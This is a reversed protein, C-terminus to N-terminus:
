DEALGDLFGADRVIGQRVLLRVLSGVIKWAPVSRGGGRGTALDELKALIERELAAANAPESRAEDAFLDTLDVVADEPAVPDSLRPPVFPGTPVIEGPDREGYIYRRIAADVASAPAAAISVHMGSRFRVEDIAELNTPDAMAVWLRAPGKEPRTVDFPFLKYKECVARPVTRIVDLPIERASLDVAPVGLQRALAGCIRDDGTFQMDVVIEGLKGGWRKQYGLAAELQYRDIAGSSLLLEGLKLKSGNSTM